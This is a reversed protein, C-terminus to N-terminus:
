ITKTVLIVEPPCKDSNLTDIKRIHYKKDLTSIYELLDAREKKGETHGYYCTIVLLGNVKLLGLSKEVAKITTDSVTTIAKDGKPLYGLNFLIVDCKEKVYKDINEHGDLILRYNSKANEKLLRETAELAQKQIDFGYVFKSSKALFLTDNGNGCTCDVTIAEKNLYMSCLYQVLSTTKVVINNM